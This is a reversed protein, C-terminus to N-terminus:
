KTDTHQQRLQDLEHQLYDIMKPMDEAKILGIAMHHKTIVMLQDGEQINLENRVKAPIVIQGKPGVTVAGQMVIHCQEPIMLSIHLLLQFLQVKRKYLSTFYLLLLM